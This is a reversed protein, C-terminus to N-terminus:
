FKELSGRIMSYYSSLLKSKASTKICRWLKETRNNLRVKFLQFCGSRGIKMMLKLMEIADLRLLHM